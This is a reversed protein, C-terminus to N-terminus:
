PRKRSRDARTESDSDRLQRFMRDFSLVNRELRLEKPLEQPQFAPVEPRAEVAGSATAAGVLIGAAFIGVALLAIGSALLWARARERTELSM